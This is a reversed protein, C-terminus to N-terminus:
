APEGERETRERLAQQLLREGLDGLLDDRLRTAAGPQEIMARWRTLEDARQAPTWDLRDKAPFHLAIPTRLFATRRGAERMFKHWMFQDTPLGPPTTSWGLPLRLYAELTHAGFALGFGDSAWDGLQNPTWALWPETFAPHELDFFYGRVRDGPDVDVQMAGAFDADTLARELAELHGPLWLDDDCQYCVIRGQAQRLIADRHAEGLRPGKPRDFFRIRPDAAQLAGVAARTDDGVGDGVILIEIDDVGQDQVSAVSLPLTSAHNHTPILVSARRM